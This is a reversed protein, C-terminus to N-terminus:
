KRSRSLVNQAAALEIHSAARTANRLACSEGIMLALGDANAHLRGHGEYAIVRRFIRARATHTVGSRTKVSFLNGPTQAMEMDRSLQEGLARRLIAEQEQAPRYGYCVHAELEHSIQLSRAVSSVLLAGLLLTGSGTGGEAGALLAVRLRRSISEDPFGGRRLSHAASGAPSLRTLIQELQAAMKDAALWLAARGVAPKQGAQDSRTNLLLEPPCLKWLPQFEVDDKANEAIDVLPEMELSLTESDTFSKVNQQGYRRILEQSIPEAAVPFDLHQHEIWPPPGGLKASLAAKCDLHALGGIGGFSIMLCRNAYVDDSLLKM